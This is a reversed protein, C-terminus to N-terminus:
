TSKKLEVATLRLNSLEVTYDTRTVSAFIEVSVPTFDATPLFAFPTSSSVFTVHLPVETEEQVRALPLKREQDQIRGADPDTAPDTREHNYFAALLTLTPSESQPITGTVYLTGTLMVLFKSEKSTPPLLTGGVHEVTPADDSLATLGTLPPLAVDTVTANGIRTRLDKVRHIRGADDDSRTIRALPAYYHRVGHPRVFGLDEIRTNPDVGASQDRALYRTRFTWHDGRRLDRGGFRVRVGDELPISVSVLPDVPDPPMQVGFANWREIRPRDALAYTAGVPDDLTVVNDLVSTIRAREQRLGCRILVFDRALFETGDEVLVVRTGADITRTVRAIMSANEDSWRFTAAGLEGPTDIEVRFLRNDRGTYAGETSLLGYGRGDGSPMPGGQAVRVCQRLRQRTSTDPGGLAIERIDPDEVFTVAEEWVDLYVTDERTGSGAAPTTIPPDTPDAQTSYLTDHVLVAPYGNVYMRGANELGPQTIQFDANLIELLDLGVDAIEDPVEEAEDPQELGDGATDRILGMLALQAQLQSLESGRIIFNNTGTQEYLATSGLRLDDLDWALPAASDQYLEFGYRVVQEPDVPGADGVEYIALQQLIHLPGPLPPSPFQSPSTQEVTLQFQRTAEAGEADTAKITFQFTGLATPTGSITVTRMDQLQGGGVDEDLDPASLTLGAPLPSTAQWTIPPVGGVASVLTTYDLDDGDPKERYAKPLPSETSIRFRVDLPTAFGAMWQERALAPNNFTWTTRGGAADEMFFRIPGPVRRSMRFRFVLLEYESVDLVEGEPLTKVLRVTGPHGSVRLFANGSFPVDRGLRLNGLPPDLEWGELSEGNDLLDGPFQIFFLLPAFFYAGIFGFLWAVCNGLAEQFVNQLVEEIGQGPDSSDVEGMSSEIQAALEDLPMPFIREVLFGQNPTGEGVAERALRKLMSFTIHQGENWDSDLVVRGQQMYVGLYNKLEDFGERSVARSM